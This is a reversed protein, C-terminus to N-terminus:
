VGNQIEEKKWLPLNEIKEYESIRSKIVKSGLICFLMCINVFATEKLRGVNPVLTMGTSVEIIDYINQSKNTNILALEIIGDDTEYGQKYLPKGMEVAYNKNNIHKKILM